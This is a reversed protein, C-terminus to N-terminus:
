SRERREVATVPSEGSPRGAYRREERARESPIILQALEKATTPRLAFGMSERMAAM